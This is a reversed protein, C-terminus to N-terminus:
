PKHVVIGLRELRAQLLRAEYLYRFMTRESIQWEKAKGTIDVPGNRMLVLLQVLRLTKM